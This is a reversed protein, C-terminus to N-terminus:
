KRRKKPFSHDDLIMGKKLFLAQWMFVAPDMEPRGGVIRPMM